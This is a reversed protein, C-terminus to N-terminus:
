HQSASYLMAAAPRPVATGGDVSRLLRGPDRLQRYGGPPALAEAPHGGGDFYPAVTEALAAAHQRWGQRGAAVTLAVLNDREADLWARAAAVDVLPPSLPQELALDPRRHRRGPFLLDMAAGATRLYHDLLRTMAARQSPPGDTVAALEGAYTRLLPHILYRGAGGQRVLNARALLDLAQQAEALTATGTLAALAGARVDTGPHLALLRFAQGAEATLRSYSWSFVARLSTRDDDGVDLLDLASDAAAFEADLEALSVGPRRGALEAVIRLALPLRACREALAAAAGPEVEVQGGLLAGLLNVADAAPLVDLEVRRGGHRAILGALSDRSTVLVACAPAGPLLSRLQEVNRANDLVVLLRRGALLSRYLAAREALDRPIESGPVGLARLFGALVAGPQAPAEPDFGRLDVYLQGDPFHASWAHAWHVTLATKGVGAMGSVVAIPAPRDAGLLRSLEAFEDDRGTFNDVPAPLQRVVATRAAAAAGTGRHVADRYATVRYWAEAWEHQEASSAGLAIVIRDLVQAPALRKGILYAHITSRPEGVRGALEEVSVKASRTGHAARSRLLGLERVLDDLNAVRVPDPGSASGQSDREM